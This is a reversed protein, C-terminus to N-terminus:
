AANMEKLLKLVKEKEYSGHGDEIGGTDVSKTVKGDKNVVWFHPYDKAKPLKAFFRDNTNEDGYYVEIPVFANNLAAKVDPKKSVFAEL